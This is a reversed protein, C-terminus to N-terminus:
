YGVGRQWPNPSANNQSRFNQSPPGYSRDSMPRSYPSAAGGRLMPASPPEVPSRPPQNYYETGLGDQKPIDTRSAVNSNTFTGETSSGEIDDDLDMRKRESAYGHKGDGRATAGLADLETTGLNTQSKIFSGRDDRMPQYRTDPNKSVLAWVSAWIVMLLIVIAFVCNIVFFLVGMVGIALAPLNFVQTFFLVLLANFFNVAQISINFANTKKDMYPRMVSVAILMGTDVIVFGIAQAVGSGQGFAVFLGKVLIYGLTCIIFYYMTAKFQVYLFGWKNLAKPDSYLIYAPNKHMKISRQAIRWVKVAAWGLITLMTIITCVALVVEGASDRKTMEWFCLVVMQPFGILVVRYLIGKLVL